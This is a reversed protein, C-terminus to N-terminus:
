AILASRYVSVPSGEAVFASVPPQILMPVFAPGYFDKADIDHWSEQANWVRWPVHEVRYEATTGDRRKTYGWYHEAIFETLSGPEHPQPDGAISAGLVHWRGGHRWRFECKAEDIISAMPVCVYNEHYLRNAVLVVARRAVAERIFVVGRRVENNVKRRVYIRLNVEDFSGHFLVPVGRIRTHLFRFGVISVFHQGDYDDLVTGHPVYSALAAPDATFNLM